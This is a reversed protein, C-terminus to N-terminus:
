KNEGEPCRCWGNRHSGLTDRGVRYGEAALENHIARTSAKSALVRRLAESDESDLSALLEGVPCLQSDAKSLTTLRDKLTM